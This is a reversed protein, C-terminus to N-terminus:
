GFVARISLAAAAEDQWITIYDGGPLSPTLPHSWARPCGAKRGARRRKRLRSASFVRRRHQVASGRMTSACSEPAERICSPKVINSFISCELATEARGPQNLHGMQQDRFDGIGIVVVDAIVKGAIEAAAGGIRLDDLRHLKRRSFHSVVVLATSPSLGM